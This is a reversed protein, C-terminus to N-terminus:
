REFNFKPQEGYKENRGGNFFFAGANGVDASASSATSILSGFRTRGRKEHQSVWDFISLSGSREQSYRDHKTKFKSKRDVYRLPVAM